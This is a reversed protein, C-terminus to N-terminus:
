EVSLMVKGYDEDFNTCSDEFSSSPDITIWVTGSEKSSTDISTALPGYYLRRNVTASTAGGGVVPNDSNVLAIKLNSVAQGNVEVSTDTTVPGLSEKSGFHTEIFTGEGAESANTTAGGYDASSDTQNFTGAKVYCGTGSGSVVESNAVLAYIRDWTGKQAQINSILTSVSNQNALDVDVGTASEFIAWRAGSTSNEFGLQYFTIEFKDPRFKGDALAPSTIPMFALLAIAKLLFSNFRKM